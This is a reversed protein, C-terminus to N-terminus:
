LPSSSSNSMHMLDMCKGQLLSVLKSTVTNYVSEQKNSAFGNFSVQADTTNQKSFISNELEAPDKKNDLFVNTELLM